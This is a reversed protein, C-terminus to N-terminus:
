SPMGQHRRLTCGVRPREKQVGALRSRLSFLDRFHLAQDRWVKTAFAVAQVSFMVPQVTTESKLMTLVQRASTSNGTTSFWLTYYYFTTKSVVGWLLSPRSDFGESTDGLGVSGCLFQVQLPRACAYTAVYYTTLSMGSLVWSRAALTHNASLTAGWLLGHPLSCLYRFLRPRASRTPHDASETLVAPHCAVHTVTSSTGDLLREREETCHEHLLRLGRSGRM